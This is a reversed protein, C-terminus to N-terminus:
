ARIISVGMGLKHIQTMMRTWIAIFLKLIPLSRFEDWASNISEAINFTIHGFRPAHFCYHAWSKYPIANIYEAAPVSIDKIASIADEFDYKNFTYAAKWFANRAQLKFHKQVNDALHQCCHSHYVNPFVDPVATQLGKDWDSIFVTQDLNMGTFGQEM